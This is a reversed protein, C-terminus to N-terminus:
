PEEDEDDPDPEIDLLGEIWNALSEAAASFARLVMVAIIALIRERSM